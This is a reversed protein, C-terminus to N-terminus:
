WIHTKSVQTKFDNIKKLVNERYNRLCTICEDNIKRNKCHNCFNSYITAFENLCGNFRAEKESCLKQATRLEIEVDNIRAKLIKILNENNILSVKSDNFLEGLTFTRCFEICKITLNSFNYTQATILLELSPDVNLLYNECQIKLSTIQYEEILPLLISVNSDDIPQAPPYIAKLLLIMDEYNKDTLVVKSASGELFDGSFMKKFVKSWISLVEKHCYILQSDVVLTITSDESTSFDYTECTINSELKKGDEAMLKGNCQMCGLNMTRRGRTPKDNVIM